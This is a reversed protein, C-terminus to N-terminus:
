TLIRKKWLIEIGLMWMTNFGSKQPITKPHKSIATAHKKRFFRTELEQKLVCVAGVFTSFLSCLSFSIKIAQLLKM